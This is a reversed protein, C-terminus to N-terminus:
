VHARGIKALILEGETMYYGKKIWIQLADTLSSMWDLMAIDLKRATAETAIGHVDKWILAMNMTQIKLVEYKEKM